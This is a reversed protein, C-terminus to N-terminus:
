GNMGGGMKGRKKTERHTLKKSLVGGNSVGIDISNNKVIRVIMPIWGAMGVLFGM